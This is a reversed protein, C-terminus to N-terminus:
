QLKQLQNAHREKIGGASCEGTSLAATVDGQGSQSHVVISRSYQSNIYQCQWRDSVQAQRWGHAQMFEIVKFHHNDGNKVQAGDLAVKVESAARQSANLHIALLLSVEAESMTQKSPATTSM